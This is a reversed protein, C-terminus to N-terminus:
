SAVRGQRELEALIQRELALRAQRDLPRLIPHRRGKTDRRVPFTLVLRGARTRRIGIGDVQLSGTLTCTVWGLLGGAAERGSTHTFRIGTLLGNM